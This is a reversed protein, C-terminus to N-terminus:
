CYSIHLFNLCTCQIKTALLFFTETPCVSHTLSLRFACLCLILMSVHNKNVFFTRYGNKKCFYHLCFSAYTFRQIKQEPKQHLVLRLALLIFGPEDGVKLGACLEAIGQSLYLARFPIIIGTTRM